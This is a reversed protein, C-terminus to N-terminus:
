EMMKCGVSEGDKEPDTATGVSGAGGKLLELVKRSEMSLPSPM